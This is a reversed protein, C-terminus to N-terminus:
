VKWCNLLAEGTTEEDKGVRREINSTRKKGDVLRGRDLAEWGGTEREEVVNYAM